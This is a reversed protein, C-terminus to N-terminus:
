GNQKRKNQKKECNLKPLKQQFKKLSVTKKKEEGTDLYDILSDFANMM